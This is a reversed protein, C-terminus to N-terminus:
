LKGQKRSGRPFTSWTWGSCCLFVNPQFYSIVKVAARCEMVIRAKAKGVSLNSAKQITQNVKKLAGLLAQQNNARKTHETVLQKNLTFLDAYIRRMLPMDGLLRADEARIVLAKVRHSSDAMDAVLRHRANNYDSVDELVKRLGQLELPFHM